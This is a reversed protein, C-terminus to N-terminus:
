SVYEMPLTTKVIVYREGRRTRESMADEFDVFPGAVVHQPSDHKYFAVFYLDFETMVEGEGEQGESRRAALM